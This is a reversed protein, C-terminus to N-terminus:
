QAGKAQLFADITQRVTRKRSSEWRGNYRIESVTCDAVEVDTDTDHRAVLVAAEIGARWCADCLRELALRQGTPLVAAGYKVELFVFLKGGFDLFGDIDTPTITGYRLGRFLLLQRGLAPQRYVGRDNM